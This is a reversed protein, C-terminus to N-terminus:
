SLNKAHSKASNDTLVGEAVKFSKNVPFKKTGMMLLSIIVIPIMFENSGELM